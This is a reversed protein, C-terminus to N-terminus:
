RINEGVPLAIGGEIRGPDLRVPEGDAQTWGGGLAKYLSVLALFQAQRVQALADQDNYLTTQVQLVVILDVTGAQLQARAIDAARQARAVAQRELAEQEATFHQATLALDADTFAQLVSKRYDAVLEAYRGKALELKGRLTGGDFIPQTLGAALSGIVAAPGLLSSLAASQLGGSGTLQISPFFAARAQKIDANAAILQAEAAAVDPRRALLESPLGPAVAPRRLRTLTGPRVTIAEPPRGTLIGLGILAQDRQGRLNPIQARLGAVLAEQQAVDLASATGAVFRGNIVRLTQEADGLNREAVDLRDQLGMATFWTSAVGSTVTLAITQQDFRSFAATAQAAAEAARNKGWFDVEYSVNLGAAYQRVDGVGRGGSLAVQRWSAAGTAGLSPLLGAGAIRLQADAQRVRAIAAAIDLNKERAEAILGDLEPSGFGRWWESTPWSPEADATADSARFAPPMEAGPRSYGPGLDCGALLLTCFVAALRGRSTL